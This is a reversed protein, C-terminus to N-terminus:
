PNGQNPYPPEMTSNSAGRVVTPLVRPLSRSRISTMPRNVVASTSDLTVPVTKYRLITPLSSGVSDLSVNPTIVCNSYLKWSGEPSTFPCSCSNSFRSGCSRCALEVLRPASIRQFIDGEGLLFGDSVSPSPNGSSQSKQPSGSMSRKSPEGSSRTIVARPKTM